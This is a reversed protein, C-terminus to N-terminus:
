DVKAMSADCAVQGRAELFARVEAMMPGFAEPEVPLHSGHDLLRWRKAGTVREFTPRSAGPPPWEDAGPHVLLLECPPALEARARRPHSAGHALLATDDRLSVM